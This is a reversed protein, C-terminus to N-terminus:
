RIEVENIDAVEAWTYTIRTLGIDVLDSGYQRSPNGTITVIKVDGADTKLLFPGEQSIFKTWREINYISHEPSSITGLLATFTGTDYRDSGHVTKPFRGETGYATNGVVTEITGPEIDVDFIFGNDTHYINYGRRTLKYISWARKRSGFEPSKGYYINGEGDVGCVIFRYRTNYGWEVTSIVYEGTQSSYTTNGTYKCGIFADSESQWFNQELFTFLAGGAPMGTVIATGTTHNRVTLPNLASFGLRQMTQVTVGDQTTVELYIDVAAPDDPIESYGDTCSLPFVDEITTNWHTEHYLKMPSLRQEYGSGADNYDAWMRWSQIETGEAQSYTGTAEIGNTTLECTLTLTPTTRYYFTFADCILYNTILKYSEGATTTRTSSTVGNIKAGAVTAEGTTANYATILLDRDNLRLVCGGALITNSSRYVPGRFFSIDKDIYVKTATTSSEQVKGAGMYVNYNGTSTEQSMDGAQRQYITMQGMYDHGAVFSTDSAMTVTITQGREYDTSVGDGLSRTHTARSDIDTYTTSIYSIHDSNIRFSLGEQTIDVARNDYSVNTTTKISSRM